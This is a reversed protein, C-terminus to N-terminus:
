KTELRTIVQDFKTGDREVILVRVPMFDRERALWVEIQNSDGAERQKVLHVTDMKGIRTELQERGTVQYRYLQIKKGNTMPFTALKLKDFPMFMFHYLLSLRDQTGAPLQAMEKRGDFTMRLEGARWDFTASVNKSSDDLRGYEFREPRLGSATVAGTSEIKIRTRLFLAAVGVPTSDSVVRYTAGTKEFSEQLVAIHVGNRSLDYSARVVDPPAAHLAIPAAILAGCIFRILNRAIMFRSKPVTPHCAHHPRPKLM